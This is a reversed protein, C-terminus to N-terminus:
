VGAARSLQRVGGSVRRYREVGDISLLQHKVSGASFERLEATHVGLEVEAGNALRAIASEAHAALMDEVERLQNSLSIVRRLDEPTIPQDNQGGMLILKSM